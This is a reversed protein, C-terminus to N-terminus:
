GLACHGHEQQGIPGDDLLAKLDHLVHKTPFEALFFRMPHLAVIIFELEVQVAVLVRIAVLIHVFHLMARKCRGIESVEISAQALTWSKSGLEVIREKREHPLEGVVVSIPEVSLRPGVHMSPQALMEFRLFELAAHLFLLLPKLTVVDGHEGSSQSENFMTRHAALSAVADKEFKM